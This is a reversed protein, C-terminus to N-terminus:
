TTGSVGRSQSKVPNVGIGVAACGLTYGDRILYWRDRTFSDQGVLSGARLWPWFALFGALVTLGHLMRLCFLLRHPLSTGYWWNLSCSLIAIHGICASFYVLFGGMEM